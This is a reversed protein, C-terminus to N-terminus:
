TCARLKSGDFIRKQNFRKGQLLLEKFAEKDHVSDSVRDGKCGQGHSNEDNTVEPSYNEIVAETSPCTQKKNM